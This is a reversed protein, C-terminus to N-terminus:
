RSPTPDMMPKGPVFRPSPEPEPSDEDLDTRGGDAVARRIAQDTPNDGLQHVSGDGLIVVGGRSARATDPMQGSRRQADTMAATPDFPRSAATASGHPTPHWFTLATALRLLAAVIFLLSIVLRYPM